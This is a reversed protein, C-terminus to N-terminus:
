TLHEILIKLGIIILTIGGVIEAYQPKIRDNIKRGLFTGLLSLLLSALGIFIIARVIDVAIVSFSFGIALADISTAVALVLLTGIGLTKFVSSEQEPHFGEYVMRGGIFALLGFAIWHDIRSLYQVVIEGGLWGLLTMGAQFVGFLLAMGWITRQPLEKIGAGASFSVAFCDMALAVSIFILELLTM